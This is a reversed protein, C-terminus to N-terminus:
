LRMGVESATAALVYIVFVYVINGTKLIRRLSIRYKVTLILM